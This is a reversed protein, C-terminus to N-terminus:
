RGAALQTAAELIEDKGAAIGDVTSHVIVDPTVGHGHLLTGDANLVRMGTFLVKMRGFTDYFVVNGNTGATPAGVIMGLHEHQVIQLMTEAQSISRGDALFIPRAQVHPLKPASWWRNEEYHTTDTATVVPILWRPSEVAHTFMHAILHWAGEAISGRTDCIVSRAKILKPLLENLQDQSITALDIYYVGPVVEEGSKPHDENLQGLITGYLRPVAVEVPRPIATPTRASLQILEGTRGYTLFRSVAFDYYAATAASIKPAAQALITSIPIGDIATITSGYPLAEKYAAIAKVTVVSDGVKRFMFPLVGDITFRNVFAHGDHLKAIMAQVVAELEDPSRTSAAKQVVLVFEDSWNMKVDDSYPYFWRLVLWVDVVTAVRAALDNLVFPPSSAAVPRPWTAHGDTWVATPMRLRMGDGIEKDLVDRHNDWQTELLRSVTVCHGTDCSADREVHYLEHGVGEIGIGDTLLDAVVKGNCTLELQSIAVVGHGRIAVGFSFETTGEPFEALTSLEANWAKGRETTFPGDDSPSIDFEVGPEGSRIQSQKRLVLPRCGGLRSVPLRRYLHVRARDKTGIGDRFALYASGSFGYRVWRTLYGGTAHPPEKSRPSGGTEYIEATPAVASVLSSLAVRVEDRDRAGLIRQIVAVEIRRWNAQAAEDSPHFFRLYGFLTAATRLHEIEERGLARAAFVPSPEATGVVDDFWGDADGRAVLQIQLDTADPPVDLAVSLETWDATAVAESEVSTWATALMGPHSVAVRVMARGSDSGASMRAHASVVLRQGRLMTADISRTVVTEAGAAGSSLRLGNGSQGHDSRVAGGGEAPKASWQSLRDEFSERFVWRPHSTAPVAPHCGALFWLGIAAMSASISSLTSTFRRHPPM